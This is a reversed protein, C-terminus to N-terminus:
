PLTVQPNMGPRIVLPGVSVVMGDQRIQWYHTGPLLSLGNTLAERSYLTGDLYVDGQPRTVSICVTEPQPSTPRNAIKVAALLAASIALLVILLLNARAFSLLRRIGIPSISEQKQV